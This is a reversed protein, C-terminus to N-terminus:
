RRPTQEPQRWYGAMIQPGRMGRGRWKVSPVPLGTTASPDDGRHGPDARRDGHGRIDPRVPPRLDPGSTPRRPTQTMRLGSSPRAWGPRSRTPWPRRDALAPGVDPGRFSAFDRPQRRPREILAHLRHDGRRHLRAAARPHHRAGAVARVPLPPDPDLTVLLRRRRPRHHRHHSCHAIVWCRRLAAGGAGLRPLDALTFAMASHRLMAGKARRHHRLHLAVPRSRGALPHAARSRGQHARLAALFDTAGQSNEWLPPLVPVRGPDPFRPRQGVAAEGGPRSELGELVTPAHRRPRRHRAARFRRVAPGTEDRRYMRTPPPRSPAIKWARAMAVVFHAHKQLIITV